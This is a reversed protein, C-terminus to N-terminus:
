INRAVFQGLGFHSGYGLVIPGEVAEAFTLRLRRPRAQSPPPAGDPRAIAYNAERVVGLDEVAVSAAAEKTMGAFPLEKSIQRSPADKHWPAVWPTRSEWFRSRGFLIGDHRDGMAIPELDHAGLGPVFLRESMALLRMAVGDLGGSAHVTLHDILGDADEDVPLYRAHTHQPTPGHLCLPLLHSGRSWRAAEILMERMAVGVRITEHVGLPEGGIIRWRWCKAAPVRAAQPEELLHQVEVCGPM